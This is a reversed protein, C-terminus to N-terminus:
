RSGMGRGWARRWGPARSKTRGKTVKEGGSPHPAGRPPPTRPRSSGDTPRGLVARWRGVRPRSGETVRRASELASVASARPTEISKRSCCTRGSSRTTRRPRLRRIRDRLELPPQDLVDDERQFVDPSAPVPVRPPRRDGPAARRPRTVTPHLVPPGHREALVALAWARLDTGTRHGSPRPAAGVRAEAAVGRSRCRSTRV